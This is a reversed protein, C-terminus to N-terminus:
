AHQAQEEQIKQSLRTRDKKKLKRKTNKNAVHLQARKENPANRLRKPKKADKNEAPKTEAEQEKKAQEKQQKLAQEQEKQLRIMEKRKADQERM